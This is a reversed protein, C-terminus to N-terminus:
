LINTEMASPQQARKDDDSHAPIPLSSANDDSVDADHAPIIFDHEDDHGRIVEDAPALMLVLM